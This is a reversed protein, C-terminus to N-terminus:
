WDSFNCWVSGDSGEAIHDCYLLFDDHVKTLSQSMDIMHALNSYLALCNRGQHCTVYSISSNQTGVCILQM